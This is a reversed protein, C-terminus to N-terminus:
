GLATMWVWRVCRGIPTRHFLPCCAYPFEVNPVVADEPPREEQLKHHDDVSDIGCQLHRAGLAHDGDLGILTIGQCTLIDCQRMRPSETFFCSLILRDLYRLRM